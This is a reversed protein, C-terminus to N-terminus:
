CCRSRFWHQRLRILRVQHAKCSAVPRRQLRTRWCPCRSETGTSASRLEDNSVAGLFYHTEAVNLLAATTRDHRTAADHGACPRAARQSSTRDLYSHRLDIADVLTRKARERPGSGCEHRCRDRPVHIALEDGVLLSLSFSHLSSTTCGRRALPRRLCHHLLYPKTSNTSPADLRAADFLACNNLQQTPALRHRPRDSGPRDHDALVANSCTRTSAAISIGPSIRAGSFDVSSTSSALESSGTSLYRPAPTGHDYEHAVFRFSVYPSRAPGRSAQASARRARRVFHNIDQSSPSSVGRGRGPEQDAQEALSLIIM